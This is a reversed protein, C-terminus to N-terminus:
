NPQERHRPVAPNFGNSDAARPPTTPVREESAVAGKEGLARRAMQALDEDSVNPLFRPRYIEELMIRLVAVVPVAIVVGLVGFAAVCFLVSFIVAVPHLQLQGAIILPSIVNHELLQIGLYAVMVWFPAYGGEGVALLLAPVGSLIPGVYPISEFVTAILGLVLADQFGFIPWMSFFVLLGIVAMGLLTALAWRPVFLVIRQVIKLACPHHKEPIMGFFTAMIPRPNLLTFIVGVFVTVMVILLSAANSALSRFGSTVNALLDGVGPHFYDASPPTRLPTELSPVVGLPATNADQREQAVERTVERKLREQSIVAKHEMKVIPRQIREWYDPLREFFKATSRKMPSYFAWSTLAAIVLFFVVFMLTGLMRGGSWKRLQSVVPNLALSIFMILFFSLVIPSLLPFAKVFIFVGAAFLIASYLNRSQSETTEAM